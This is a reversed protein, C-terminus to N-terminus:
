RQHAPSGALADNRANRANALVSSAEDMDALPPTYDRIRAIRDGAMEVLALNQVTHQAAGTGTVLTYQILVDNPESTPYIWIPSGNTFDGAAWCREAGIADMSIFQGAVSSAYEMVAFRTFVGAIANEDQTACASAYRSIAAEVNTIISASTPRDPAMTVAHFQPGATVVPGTDAAIALQTSLALSALTLSILSKSMPVEPLHTSYSRDDQFQALFIDAQSTRM